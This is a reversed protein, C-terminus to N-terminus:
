APPTTVNLGTTGMLAVAIRKKQFWSMNGMYGNFSPDQPRWGNAVILGQAAYYKAPDPGLGTQPYSKLM